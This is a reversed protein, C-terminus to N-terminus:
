ARETGHAFDIADWRLTVLEVPRLGHRYAVLVITRRSPRQPQFCCQLFFSSQGGQYTASPAGSARDNESTPGTNASFSKAFRATPSATVRGLLPCDDFLSDAPKSPPRKLAEDVM